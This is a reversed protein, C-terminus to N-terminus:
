GGLALRRSADGPPDYLRGFGEAVLRSAADASHGDEENDLAWQAHEALLALAVSHGIMLALRRAGAELAQSDGATLRQEHWEAARRISSEAFVAAEVLRPDSCGARCRGALAMLADFGTGEQLVRLLDLSLVNTTGEWIPLVATDRLLTPLGTDEVYGAGGFAEIVESACGAAAKATTLKAVSTLLRLEMEGLEGLGDHERRGILDVLHFGLHLCAEARAQALALTDLHLPQTDLTQGCALRRRAYDRAIAEM